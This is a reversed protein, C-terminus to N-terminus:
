QLLRIILHNLTETTNKVCVTKLKAGGACPVGDRADERRRGHHHVAAVLVGAEGEGIVVHDGDQGPSVDLLSVGNVVGIGPCEVARDDSPNAQELPFVEAALTDAALVGTLEPGVGTHHEAVAPGGHHGSVGQVEGSVGEPAAPLAVILYRSQLHTLNPAM